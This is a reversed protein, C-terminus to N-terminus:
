YFAHIKCAFSNLFKSHPMPAILENVKTSSSSDIGIKELMKEVEKELRLELLSGPFENISDCLDICCM